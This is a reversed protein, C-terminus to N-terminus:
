NGGEIKEVSVACHKLEPMKSLPDLATNTLMNAGNPFHMAMYLVGPAVDDTVRALPLSEGRRSRLKIREGDAIKLRKADETNIQVYGEPVEYHLIKSRDTQTRTHYHFILRGTMLTFPYEADAVEAPPRYELGFFTGLGDAAAFKERHLIPTGPHDETPCPWHLSEPKELRAYSCGAMSPTVRRLDDWIEEPSKFDFGKLGLKEALLVFIEWDEKADGPPDVAKRVRNIRREGSTFTGDKEAFSCGPLVVDAHECTETWFIDQVVLFDLKDLQRMVHNSDPYSVVPNLAFIYMAKIPDGCENIQETLTSGYWDPLSGAEMGWLEEMKKRIEPVECKQYGSYVNPYAGMDCAGQVNNQGRLPNVGVGERGINGTLMSLNGMSRVNDTGTTLETIGLCYIIVANKATAYKRAIDKVKELPVGHISEADAYKEVMKKLDDFGKTRKEIFEKDHLGEKIIWYMMSNALAIHTSPNFRVWDDALRATPSYRPDIVIIPTGKKKAQAVRRGALPHAEVANSGWMLILDSNLVDEFPNTAAGSGFSLSLGAVSPGHCIRACNDVNNTQFAVRALKQMIYCEENPTRCSVQFGLSKPGHRDSTEKFKKAVLDLAEDWSAEVFKGDKKILPKTLRDPSHVFEHCTMGKPCLKGENIPSRRYPQVGTVKGDQVVLNLTCGVGCYPCTTQVYKLSPVSPKSM